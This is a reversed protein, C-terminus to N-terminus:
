KLLLFVKMLIIIEMLLIANYEDYILASIIYNYFLISIKYKKILEENNTEKIFKIFNPGYFIKIGKCGSIICNVIKSPFIIMTYSKLLFEIFCNDCIRHECRFTKSNGNIENECKSCIIAEHNGYMKSFCKSNRNGYHEETTAFIEQCLWCWDKGCYHCKIHNCGGNKNTVIHCYPCNKLNYIKSFKQFLKDIKEEEKCKGDDHWLEGCNICFKHGMTCINYEKNDNKKAFGNCNVIPCFMLEPNSLIIEKTSNKELLKKLNNVEEKDKINFLLIQEIKDKTYVFKCEPCFLSYKGNKILEKIHLYLCESCFYNNCQECKNNTEEENSIDEECIKCKYERKEKYKNKINFIGLNGYSQNKNITNFSINMFSNIENVHNIKKEGCIECCDKESSAYFLHQYIGNEKTLYNAAENINLPKAFIYLKIITKKDYGSKILFIIDRKTEFDLKEYFSNNSSFSVNNLSEECEERKNRRVFIRESTLM